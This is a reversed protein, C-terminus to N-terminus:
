PLAEAVRLSMQRTKASVMYIREGTSRIVRVRRVVRGDVDFDEILLAPGGRLQVEQINVAEDAPIDLLWGPNAVFKRALAQSEWGSVGLSRFAVGAFRELPFWTPISFEIPRAQLIQLDDEYDATVMPGIEARLQVGEWEAPVAVDNAGVKHLAAQLAQIHITQEVTIPGVTTISPNASLVGAPPLYPRFGAKREADVLDRAPQQLGNTTVQAHLPLKSLDLRVLDVHKLVFRYWLQQAFVRSQPFALAAVCVAAATAAAGWAWSRNRKRLGADLLERGHAFNPRWQPKLTALRDSIWRDENMEM